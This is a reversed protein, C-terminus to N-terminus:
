SRRRLDFVGGFASTSSGAILPCVEVMIRPNKLIALIIKKIIRRM